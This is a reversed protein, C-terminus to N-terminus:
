EVARKLRAHGARRGAKSNRIYQDMWEKFQKAPLPKSIHYGQAVDCGLAALRDWVAQNEVGEAVVKLGLDHALTITSRVITASDKNAQMDIVFSKDIKLSDVPLKQLYGLSSYGTGFDDIFLTFGLNSLRKLIELAGEPDDMVASETIELELWGAEAGWAMLLQEMKGLLEADRLNRTSLNVAVPLAVGAHRWTSSQRLAAGVVWDTLPEILGSHEALPIFEDPPIMGQQPHIWRVLAEAGCVQGTRMDIKPQYHLVLEDEEIARRLEGALTLRRLSGEDQEATYFTYGKGSKKAQRMAVDAHQILRITESGHQPFLSIGVAASVNLMLGSMTFPAGLADLIRRAAEAAHDTDSVALLIGFENGRMCAVLEDEKLVGRIRMGVDKLLLDGQHFGLADNIEQFRDLGLLLVALSQSRTSAESLAQQVHEEFYVHNPLDTLSDHYAMRRITEHAQERETRTSLTAIGYALDNAMESLLVVEEQDFADPEEAYICLAGVVKASVRLPLAMVSGYGRKRAEERWPAFAPDSLINRTVCPKGTRIATGIPGRGRETDAWTINLIALYGEEYGAQAMPRVTKNQNQEAYGVWALRYGGIEVIIRCMEALLMQENNARVVARNGASMTKLSRNIRQMAAAMDDFIRALQGLEEAGHPLGTRAGMDGQGLRRAAGALAQLRRLVFINSGVWAAVLALTAVLLLLALNRAFDRNAAAFAVAKPIGISVYVNGAPSNHLPAFAYLRTVGDLGPEEATGERQNALIVSVLPSARMSKGVWKDPEPLRALITGRSDVVTLTSDTPLEIGTILKNLWSLNLAAFVVAKINGGADFVPYGFNIASIGTIRGVQYDGIGFGRSRVARRFYSRDNINVPRAMPLASCFVRGDPTAVGFNTYYPYPNRLEALIRSCATATTPQKVAPLQSLMFLLQHTAAILQNQEQAALRALNMADREANVAAQQRQSIATYGMLGFAPIVALLVLLMLRTRLGTTFHRM